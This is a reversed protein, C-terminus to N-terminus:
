RLHRGCSALANEGDQNGVPIMFEGGLVVSLNVFSASELHLREYVFCMYQSFEREYYTLPVEMLAPLEFHLLPGTDLVVKKQRRVSEKKWVLGFAIFTKVAAFNPCISHSWQRANNDNAYLSIVLWTRCSPPLSNAAVVWSPICGLSSCDAGRFWQCAYFFLTSMLQWSLQASLQKAVAVFTDAM